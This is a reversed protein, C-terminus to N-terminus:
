IWFTSIPEAAQSKKIQYCTVAIKKATHVKWIKGKLPWFLPPLCGTTLSLFLCLCLWRHQTIVGFICDLRWQRSGRAWRHSRITETAAAGRRGQDGAPGADEQVLGDGEEQAGARATFPLGGLWVPLRQHGPGEWYTGSGCSLELLLVSVNWSVPMHLARWWTCVFESVCLHLSRSPGFSVQPFTIWVSPFYPCMPWKNCAHM